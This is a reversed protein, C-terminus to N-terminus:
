RATALASGIEEGPEVGLEDALELLEAADADPMPIGTESRERTTLYEPEGPVLPDDGYAAIGASIEPSSETEHVYNEMSRVVAEVTAQPAFATPDAAFFMAANGFKEGVDTQSVALANGAIAAFLDAVVALGFGKYGAERGGLPLLAGEGELTFAAAETVSGGDDTVTWSPDVPEGTAIRERIKGHAVQSTAIDLVIPYPLADFTPVGFAIPNTSFRRQASGDPAARLSGQGTVFAGFLLGAEAAREAWEGIRGLHTADRIGVVAVEADRASEVLLDTALRGAAQGYADRGDVQGTTPSEAVVEPRATPELPFGEDDYLSWRHYRVIRRVGHSDHGRLNSLVLSEAVQAAIDDDAGTAEALRAVFAELHDPDVTPM